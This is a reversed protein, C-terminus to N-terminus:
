KPTIIEHCDEDEHVECCIAKLAQEMNRNSITKISKSEAQPGGTSLASFSAISMLYRM